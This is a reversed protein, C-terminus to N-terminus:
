QSERDAPDIISLLSQNREVTVRQVHGGDKNRAADFEIEADIAGPPIEWLNRRIPDSDFAVYGM